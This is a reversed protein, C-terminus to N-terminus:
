MNKFTFLWHKPSTTAHSDSAMLYVTTTCQLLTRWSILQLTVHLLFPDHSWCLNTMVNYCYSGSNNSDTSKNTSVTAVFVPQHLGENESMGTSLLQQWRQPADKDLRWITKILKTKLDTFANKMGFFLKEIIAIDKSTLFLKFLWCM